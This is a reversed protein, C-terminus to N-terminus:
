AGFKLNDEGKEGEEERGQGQGKTHETAREGERQEGDEGM